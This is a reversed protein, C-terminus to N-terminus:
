CQILKKLEDSVEQLNKVFIASSYKFEKWCDTSDLIVLPKKYDLCLQIESRTGLNGALAIIINATLVIIHNRSGTELGHSGSLPLHTRIPIEIYPNETSGLDRTQPLEEISDDDLRLFDRVKAHSTDNLKIPIM